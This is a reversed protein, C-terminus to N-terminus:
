CAKNRGNPGVGEGPLRTNYHRGRENTRKCFTEYTIFPVWFAHKERSAAGPGRAMICGGMMSNRLMYVKGILRWWGATSQWAKKKRPWLHATHGFQRCTERDELFCSAKRPRYLQARNGPGDGQQGDSGQPEAPRIVLHQKGVQLATVAAGDDTCQSLHIHGVLQRLVACGNQHWGVLHVFGTQLQGLLTQRTAAFGAELQDILRAKTGALEGFLDIEL